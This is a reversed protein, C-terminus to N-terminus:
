VGEPKKPWDIKRFLLNSSPATLTHYIAGDWVIIKTDKEQRVDGVWMRKKSKDYIYAQGLLEPWDTWGNESAPDLGGSLAPNSNVSERLCRLCTRRRDGHDCMKSQM